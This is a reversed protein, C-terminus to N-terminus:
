PLFNSANELIGRKKEIEDQVQKEGREKDEFRPADSIRSRIRKRIRKEEAYLGHGRDTKAGQGRGRKVPVDKHRNFSSNSEEPDGEAVPRINALTDRGLAFTTKLLLARIIFCKPWGVNSNRAPLARPLSTTSALM